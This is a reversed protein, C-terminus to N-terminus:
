SSLVTMHCQAMSVGHTQILFLHSFTDIVRGYLSTQKRASQHTLAALMWFDKFRFGNLLGRLMQKLFRAKGQMLWTSLAWGNNEKRGLIPGLLQGVFRRRCFKLALKRSSKGVFGLLFINAPRCNGEWDTLMEMITMMLALM